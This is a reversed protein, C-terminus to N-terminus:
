YCIIEHFNPIQQMISYLPKKHKESFLLLQVKSFHVFFHIDLLLFTLITKIKHKKQCSYLNFLPTLSFRSNEASGNYVSPTKVSTFGHIGIKM